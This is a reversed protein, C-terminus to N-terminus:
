GEARILNLERQAFMDSFEEEVRNAAFEFYMPDVEIGISTRGWRGAAITTTGTGM